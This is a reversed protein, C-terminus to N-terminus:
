ELTLVENEYALVTCNYNNLIDFLDQQIYKYSAKIFLVKKKYDFIVSAGQFKELIEEKISDFLNNDITSELYIKYIM